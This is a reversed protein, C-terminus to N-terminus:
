VAKKMLERICVELSSKWGPIEIGYRDRIKSKDLLSFLPRQAPTPYQSSPIPHVQCHSHTMAKIAEAFEFWSVRGENSYHYIGPLFKGSSIIKLIVRALDGAYTPSGIQDDVVRISEREKMLRIMTKVFNNGSSGYLWSTRLIITEPNNRLALEEGMRKSSGYVNIPDTPDDERLPADSFGDFVYDTSLQILRASIGRCAAALEGVAQGNILFAKEKESEARDVATYAACNICFAPKEAALTRRVKEPHDIPLQDRGMFVFDFQPYAPALQRLEMGLQGNAGTVLIKYDPM